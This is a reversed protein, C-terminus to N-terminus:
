GFRALLTEHLEVLDDKLDSGLGEGQKIYQQCARPKSENEDDTVKITVHRPWRLRFLSVRSVM